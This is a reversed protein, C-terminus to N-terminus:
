ENELEELVTKTYDFAGLETMRQVCYRKVDVDTTRQRVIDLVCSTLM